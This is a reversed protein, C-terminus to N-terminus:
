TSLSSRLVRREAGKNTPRSRGFYCRPSMNLTRATRLTNILNSVVSEFLLERIRVFDGYQDHLKKLKMYFRLDPISERLVWIGSLKALPPGSFSTLPHFYFRYTCMAGFLGVFFASFLLTTQWVAALTSLGSAILLFLTGVQATTVTKLVATGHRDWEGKRFIVLEVIIGGLFSLAQIRSNLTM